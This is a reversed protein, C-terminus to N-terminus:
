STELACVHRLQSAKGELSGQHPCVKPFIHNERGARRIGPGPTDARPAFCPNQPSSALNAGPQPGWGPGPPSEVQARGPDSACGAWLAQTQAPLLQPFAAAKEYKKSSQPLFSILCFPLTLRTYAGRNKTKDCCFNPTISM